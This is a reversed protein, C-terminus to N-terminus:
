DYEHESQFRSVAVKIEDWSYGRRYLADTAKKLENRDAQSSKLKRLLLEYVKDETDPMEELAEDWLAKPVGRSYLENRIKQIGFGKSAYHRVLMQAYQADDLYHLDLLWQVSLEANEETEGKQTLKNFLERCSMPRLGIMKLARNKCAALQAAGSLKEFDEDTLERGKFLSFDTVTNLDVKMESGDSFEATFRGVSTERLEVLTM